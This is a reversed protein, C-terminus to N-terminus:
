EEVQLEILARPFQLAAEYISLNFLQNQRVM